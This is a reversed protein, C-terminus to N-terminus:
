AEIIKTRSKIGSIIKLESKPKQLYKSVLELVEANAKGDVPLSHVSVILNGEGFKEVRQRSQKVKVKVFYKMM